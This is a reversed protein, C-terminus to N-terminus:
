DAVHLQGAKLNTMPKKQSKEITALPVLRDYLLGSLILSERKPALRVEDMITHHLCARVNRDRRVSIACRSRDSAM